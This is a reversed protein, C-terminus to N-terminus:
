GEGEILPVTAVYGAKLMDDQAVKYISTAGLVLKDNIAAWECPEPLEGEVQLVVGHQSLMFLASGAIERSVGLFIALDDLIRQQITMNLKM